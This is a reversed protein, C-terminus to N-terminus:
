QGPGAPRRPVQVREAGGRGRDGQGLLDGEQLLDILLRSAVVGANGIVHGGERDFLFVDQNEGRRPGHDRVCLGQQPQLDSTDGGLPRCALLATVAAAPTYLKVKQEVVVAPPREGALSGPLRDQAEVRHGRGRARQGHDEARTPRANEEVLRDAVAEFAVEVPLFYRGEAVQHALLH